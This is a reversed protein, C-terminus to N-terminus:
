EYSGDAQRGDRKKDGGVPMVAVVDFEGGDHTWRPGNAPWPGLEDVWGNRLQVWYKEGGAPGRKGSVLRFGPAPM